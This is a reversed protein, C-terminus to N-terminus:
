KKFAKYFACPLFVPWGIFWLIGFVIQFLIRYVSQESIGDPNKMIKRFDESKMWKDAEPYSVFGIFTGIFIGGYFWIKLLIKM